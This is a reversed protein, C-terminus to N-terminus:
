GGIQGMSRNSSFSQSFEHGKPKNFISDHLISKLQDPRDHLITLLDIENNQGLCLKMIGDSTIRIRNCSDCFGHSIPTILGVRGRFGEGRYLDAVGSESLGMPRLEPHATLIERGSIMQERHKEGYKGIPMLEIFRVELRNNRALNIFDSIEHGNIDRMMVVNIKLEIGLQLSKEISDLVNQLKNRGTIETYREPQMSDLSINLRTLGAALLDDLRDALGVGNTTMPIDTIGQIVSIGKVIEELDKRMLPEGGTLRVKRIGLSALAQVIKVIQDRTMMNCTNHQDPLCYMCNLNCKDIVSLRLYEIKRGFRDIM